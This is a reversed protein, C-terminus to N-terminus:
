NLVQWYRGEDDTSLLQAQGAQNQLQITPQAVDPLFEIRTVQAIPLSKLPAFVLAEADMRTYYLKNADAWVLFWGWDGGRAMAIAPYHCSAAMQEQYTIRKVVRNNHEDPAIMVLEQAGDEVMQQTLYVTKQLNNLSQVVVCFSPEVWDITSSASTEDAKALNLALGLMLATYLWQIKTKM